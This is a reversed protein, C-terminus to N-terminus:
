LMKNCNEEAKHSSFKSFHKSEGKRNKRKTTKNPYQRGIGKCNSVDYLNLSATTPLTYSNSQSVPSRLTEGKKHM